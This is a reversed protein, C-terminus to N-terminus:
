PSAPPAAQPLRWRAEYGLRYAARVEAACVAELSAELERTQEAQHERTDGGAGAHAAGATGELQNGGGGQTSVREAAHEAGAVLGTAAAVAADATARDADESSILQWLWWTLEADDAACAAGGAAEEAGGGGSAAGGRVCRVAAPLWEAPVSAVSAALVTLQWLCGPHAGPLSRWAAHRERLDVGSSSSAARAAM